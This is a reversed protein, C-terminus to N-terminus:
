QKTCKPPDVMGFTFTGTESICAFDGSRTKAVYHLSSLGEGVQNTIVVESANVGLVKATRSQLRHPLTECGNCLSLTVLILLRYKM